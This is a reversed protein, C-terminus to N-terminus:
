PSGGSGQRRLFALLAAHTLRPQEIHPLHGASDIPVVTIGPVRIRISDSYEFRVTQDQRGWVLLTPLGLAGFRGYLEGDDRRVNQRLTSLIARRFGEFRIQARYREPWDPHREPHLFDGLQSEPLGRAAMVFLYEGLLPVGLPVALSVRPSYAPDVLTVTRV